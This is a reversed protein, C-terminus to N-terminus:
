RYFDAYGMCGFPPAFTEVPVTLYSLRLPGSLGTLIDVKFLLRCCYLQEQLTLQSAAYHRGYRSLPSRSEGHTLDTTFMFRSNSKYRDHMLPSGSLFGTVRRKYRPIEFSQSGVSFTIDLPKQVRTRNGDDGGAALQRGWDDPSNPAIGFKM